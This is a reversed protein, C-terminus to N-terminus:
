RRKGVRKRKRAAGPPLNEMVEFRIVTKTRAVEEWIVFALATGATGALGALVTLNAIAEALQPGVGVVAWLVPPLVVASLIGALAMFTFKKRLAWIAEFSIGSVFALSMSYFGAGTIGPLGLSLLGGVLATVLASGHKRVLLASFTLCAATAAFAVPFSMGTGATIWETAALVAGLMACVVVDIGRM